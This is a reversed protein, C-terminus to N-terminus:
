ENREIVNGSCIYEIVVVGFYEEGWIWGRRSFGIEM